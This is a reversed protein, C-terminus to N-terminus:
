GSLCEIFVLWLRDGDDGASGASDAQADGLRQEFAAPTDHAGGARDTLRLVEFRRRIEDEHISLHALLFGRGLHHFCGELMEVTNIQQDVISSDENRLREGVVGFFVVIQNHIGIDGAEEVHRLLHNRLHLLLIQPM